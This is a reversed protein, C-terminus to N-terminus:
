LIDHKESYNHVKTCYNSEAHFFDVVQHWQCCQYKISDM